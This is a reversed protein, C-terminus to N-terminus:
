PKDGMEDDLRAIRDLATAQMAQDIAENLSATDHYDVGLFTVPQGCDIFFRWRRADKRLAEVEASLRDHSARDAEYRIAKLNARVIDSNHCAKFMLCAGFPHYECPECPM